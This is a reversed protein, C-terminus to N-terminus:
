SRGVGLAERAVKRDDFPRSKKGIIQVTEHGKGAIVVIDGAQAMEIARFIAAKRDPVVEHHPTPWGQQKSISIVGAEIESLIAEPAESRPNDSTLITWGSREAAAAGMSFRKGRDRDGGCGFVTVIRKQCFTAVTELLHALAADTHAYDVIVSFDQGCDIREMRGPVQPMAAIGAAIADAPVKLVTAVAMAALLNYANHRGLLPSTVEILGIPTEVEMRTGTECQKISRPYVADHRDIGFGLGTPVQEKLKRGWPNDINIVANKAQDFLRRKAGFYDWM